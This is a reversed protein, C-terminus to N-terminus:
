GRSASYIIWRRYTEDSRLTRDEFGAHREADPWGQPEIALGMYRGLPPGVTGAGFLQCHTHDSTVTLAREGDSVRVRVGGPCVVGHDLTGDLADLLDGIRRPASLDLVTGGIDAVEGTPIGRATLPTWASANAEVTHDLVDTGSLRVYPHHTLSVPTAADTRAEYDVRLADETLTFTAKAALRGPYGQDGDPSILSLVLRDAEEEAVAWTRRAFGGEGGHLHDSGENASLEHERGDVALHADAIRGSTRGLIAGLYPEDDRYSATDEYAVFVDTGSFRLRAIRAGYPLIDATASGAALRIPILSANM